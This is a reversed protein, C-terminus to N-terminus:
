LSAKNIKIYKKGIKKKLFILINVKAFEIILEWLIGV